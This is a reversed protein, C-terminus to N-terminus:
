TAIQTTLAMAILFCIWLPKTATFVSLVHDRAADLPLFCSVNKDKSSALGARSFCRKARRWA